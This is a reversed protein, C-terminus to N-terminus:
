CDNVRVVADGGGLKLENEFNPHFHEALPKSGVGVIIISGCGPCLWADGQWLKYAQWGGAGDPMGEEIEVGNKKPKYFLRCPVCVVPRM